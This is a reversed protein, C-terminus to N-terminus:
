YSIAVHSSNLRTSKRDKPDSHYQWSFKSWVGAMRVRGSSLLGAIWEVRQLLRKAGRSSLPLTGTPRWSGRRARTESDSSSASPPAGVALELHRVRAGQPRCHPALRCARGTRPVLSSVTAGLDLLEARLVARPLYMMRIAAITWLATLGSALTRFSAADSLARPWSTRRKPSVGSSASTKVRGFPM